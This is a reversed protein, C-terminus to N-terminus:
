EASNNFKQITIFDKKGELFRDEESFVCGCYRQRYLDLAKARERGEKFYPRFDRYLFEGGYSDAARQATTKLLEHNQYPSIFLTSCIAKFGYEAAFRATEMLRLEYCYACRGAYNPYVHDIFKRLGYENKIYLKMHIDRAYDILTNKRARYETVPHINPNYWFGVPEIGEARLSEVCMISCPACCIHLLLNQDEM